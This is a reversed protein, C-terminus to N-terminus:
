IKPTLRIKVTLMKLSTDDFEIFITYAKNEFIKVVSNM